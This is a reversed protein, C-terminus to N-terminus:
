WPMESRASITTSTAVMSLPFLFSYNTSATVEMMSTDSTVDVTVTASAYKPHTATLRYRGGGAPVRFAFLGMSDSAADQKASRDSVRTLERMM